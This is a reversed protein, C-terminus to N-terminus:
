RGSHSYGATSQRPLTCPPHIHGIDPAQSVSCQSCPSQIRLSGNEFFRSPLTRGWAPWCSKQLMLPAGVKYRPGAMWTCLLGLGWLHGLLLPSLPVEAKPCFGTQFVGARVLCVLKSLARSIVPDWHCSLAILQAIGPHEDAPARQCLGPMHNAM